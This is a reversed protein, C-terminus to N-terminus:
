NKKEISTVTCKYIEAIMNCEGVDGGGGGGGGGPWGVCGCVWACLPM